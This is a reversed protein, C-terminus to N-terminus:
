TESRKQHCERSPTFTMQTYLAVMPDSQRKMSIIVTLFISWNWNISDAKARFLSTSEVRPFLFFFFIFFLALWRTAWDCIKDQCIHVVSPSVPSLNHPQSLFSWGGMNWFITSLNVYLSCYFSVHYLSANNEPSFTTLVIISMMHCIGIRFTSRRPRDFVMNIDSTHSAMMASYVFSTMVGGGGGGVSSSSQHQHSTAMWRHVLHGNWWERPASSSLM